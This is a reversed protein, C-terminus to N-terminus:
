IKSKIWCTLAGSLHSGCCPMRYRMERVHSCWSFAFTFAKLFTVGLRETNAINKGYKIKKNDRFLLIQVTSKLFNGTNIKCMLLLGVDWEFTSSTTKCVRKCLCLLTHHSFFFFCINSNKLKMLIHQRLQKKFDLKLENKNEWPLGVTHLMLHRNYLM